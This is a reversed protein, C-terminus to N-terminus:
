RVPTVIFTGGAADKVNSCAIPGPDAGKSLCFEVANLYHGRLQVAVNAERLGRNNRGFDQKLKSPSTTFSSRPAQFESPIHISDYVKRILMFYEDGSLGSCTGHEQWEHQIIEKPMFNEVPAANTPPPQNTQCNHPYSGDNNQPWLGHVVFGAHTGCEAATPRSYCFEPSWSLVLLYFDFAGAQGSRSRRQQHTPYAYLSIALLALALRSRHKPTM